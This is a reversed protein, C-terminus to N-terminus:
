EDRFEVVEMSTLSEGVVKEVKGKAEELAQELEKALTVGEEFLAISDELSTHEDQLKKTITEIKAIKEEFNMRNRWVFRGNEM